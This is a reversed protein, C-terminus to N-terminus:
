QDARKETFEPSVLPLLTDVGIGLVWCTDILQQGNPLTHGQERNRIVAMDVGMLDALEQQKLGARVRAAKLVRGFEEGVKPDRKKRTM